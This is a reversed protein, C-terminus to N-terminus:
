PNPNSTPAVSDIYYLGDKALLEQVLIYRGGGNKGAIICQAQFDVIFSVSNNPGPKMASLRIQKIDCNKYMDTLAKGLPLTNNNTPFQKQYEEKNGSVVSNFWNRFRKEPTDNDRQIPAEIKIPNNVQVPRAEASITQPIPQQACAALIPIPLTAAFLELIVRGRNWRNTLRNSVFPQGLETYNQLSQELGSVEKM